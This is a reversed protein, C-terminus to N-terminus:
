LGLNFNLKDSISEPLLIMEEKDPSILEAVAEQGMVVKFWKERDSMVQYQREDATGALYPLYVVIPVRGEAKCGLRDIRGTRQEITSPNWALDHHVVHRCYKQLDVGEGMVQSCVLIDPFLPTNFARMLRARTDRKTGGTAIRINPLTHSQDEEADADEDEVRIRGMQIGAADLFRGQEIDSCRESLFRVFGEFKDRWSVGTGDKAALAIEIAKTPKIAKDLAEVPFCRVLTTEARLYQRMAELLKGEMDQDDPGTKATKFHKRIIALLAQDVAKRGPSDSTSFYRQQIRELLKEGEELSVSRGAIRLRDLWSTMVRTGIEKSIHVRLARCTHRYFGFVLVKEGSEWLDVVKGVTAGVKPHLAGSSRDLVKDFEELYWRSHALATLQVASEDTDDKEPKKNKRTFRFAEYSSCLAEGLLDQRASTASRAALFFPLLERSSIALGGSVDDKAIAGGTVRLRRPIITGGWLAGKNHRVIWPKLATEAALRTRGATEYAELVALQHSNLSDRSSALVTAWWAEVDEGCDEPRLRNWSRQLAIATRQSEDLKKGLDKLGTEFAAKEGLATKEWRVDGFRELVRVLENHGLQFPTATLFLMRDFAKAMAGDGIRLDQEMEPSQFQRALSTEPNKLHHAEDMVLLPSRWRTRSLLEKWLMEEAKRLKERVSKLRESVREAGGRAVVPMQELEYALSKLDMKDLARLVSKPVPDDLLSERGPLLSSNYIEKWASPSTQLLKQWLVEGLDSSKEKGIVWLLEALYRHIVKKVQILRAAKGRGHCRLAEAILALRVWRDTQSRSMAGQALFILNCRSSPPDDLLKMLEVSHRAIGYCVISKDLRSAPVADDRNVARRNELYCSCFTEFDEKWKEVLNAPVMVIVSGVPSQVSVSYAIGLAVFTKGMGVEDALIVGPCTRLRRLIEEVEFRQRKQDAEPLRDSIRTGLVIEPAPLFPNAVRPM